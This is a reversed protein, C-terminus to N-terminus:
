SLLEAQLVSRLAAASKM